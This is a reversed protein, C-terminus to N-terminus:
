LLLLLLLFAHKFHPIVTAWLYLLLAEPQLRMGTSDRSYICQM